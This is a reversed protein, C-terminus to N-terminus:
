PYPADHYEPETVTTAAGGESQPDLEAGGSVGTYSNCALVPSRKWDFPVDQEPALQVPQVM